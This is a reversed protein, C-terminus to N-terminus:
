RYLDKRLPAVGTRLTDFDFELYTRGLVVQGFFTQAGYVARDWTRINLLCTGPMVSRDVYMDPTVTINQKGSIEYVQKSLLPNKTM